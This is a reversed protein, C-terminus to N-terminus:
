ASRPRTRAPLSLSITSSADRIEMFSWTSARICKRTAFRATSRSRPSGARAAFTGPLLARPRASRRPRRHPLAKRFRRLEHAARGEQGQGSGGLRRNIELGSEANAPGTLQLVAESCTLYLTSGNGRALFQVEPATQGQNQEFSLPVNGYEPPRAQGPWALVALIGPAAHRWIALAFLRYGKRELM